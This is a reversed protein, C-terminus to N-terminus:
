LNIHFTRKASVVIERALEVLGSTERFPLELDQAQEQAYRRAYNFVKKAASDLSASIPIAGLIEKSTNVASVLLFPKYKGQVSVVINESRSPGTMNTAYTNIRLLSKNEFDARELVVEDRPNTSDNPM